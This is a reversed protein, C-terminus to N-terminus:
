PTLPGTVVAAGNHHRFLTNFNLSPYQGATIFATQLQNLAPRCQWVLPAYGRIMHLATTHPMHMVCSSYETHVLIQGLKKACKPQNKTTTARRNQSRGIRLQAYAKCTHGQRKTQRHQGHSISHAVDRASM